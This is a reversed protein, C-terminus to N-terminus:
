ARVSPHGDREAIFLVWNAAMDRQMLEFFERTLYPSNGHELYTREYCAYFFEWDATSIQAGELVRFRVGAERM